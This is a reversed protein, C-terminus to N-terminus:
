VIRGAVCAFALSRLFFPEEGYHRLATSVDFDPRCSEFM